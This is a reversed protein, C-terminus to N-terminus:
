MNAIMKDIESLDVALEQPEDNKNDPKQKKEVISRSKNKMHLDQMQYTQLSESKRDKLKYKVSRSEYEYDDKQFKFPNANSDSEKNDVEEFMDTGM